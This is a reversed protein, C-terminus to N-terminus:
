PLRGVTVMKNMLVNTSIWALVDDYGGEVFDHNVFDTDGDTNEAEDATAPPVVGGNKGLSYVVLPVDSAETIACASTTCVRIIGAGIGTTSLNFIATFANNVHYQYAQGWPDSAKLGLTSWPINGGTTDNPNANACADALGDNTTDPCPFFGNVVAFGLLAEKIELIDRRAESNRTQDLQASIPAIFAGILLGLIILVVAMEVLSFGSSHKKIPM